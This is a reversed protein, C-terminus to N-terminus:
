FPAKGLFCVASGEFPDSRLDGHEDAELNEFYQLTNMYLTGHVFSEINERSGFKFLGLVPDNDM